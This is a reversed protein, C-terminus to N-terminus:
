RIVLYRSSATASPAMGGSSVRSAPIAQNPANFSTTVFQTSSSCASGRSCWYGASRSRNRRLIPTGVYGPKHDNSAPILLHCILLHRCNGNIFSNAAQDLLADVSCLFDLTLYY